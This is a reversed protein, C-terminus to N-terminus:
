PTPRRDPSPVTPSSASVARNVSRIAAPTVSPLVSLIQWILFALGAGGIVVALDSTPAGDRAGAAYPGWAGAPRLAVVAAALALGSTVVVHTRSPPTDAKGFCGCSSLVGGRALALVVFGTFAAYALAVLGATVRGPLMAGFVGVVIEAGAITQAQRRTVYPGVTRIARMLPIPDRMKPAGALVLLLCAALYPAGLYGWM